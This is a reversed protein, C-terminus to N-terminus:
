TNGQRPTTAPAPHGEGHTRPGRPGQSVRVWHALGLGCLTEDVTEPDTSGTAARVEQLLYRTFCERARQLTKRFLAVNWGLRAVLVNLPADPNAIRAGLATAYRCGPHTAEYARLREMARGLLVARLPDPTSDEPPESAVATMEDVPPLSVSGHRERHIDTVHNHLTRRLFRSVPRTRDITTPQWPRPKSAPEPKEPPNTDSHGPLRIRGEVVKMWFRQVVEDALEPNQYRRAVYQYLIPHWGRYLADLTTTEPVTLDDIDTATTMTPRRTPRGWAVM